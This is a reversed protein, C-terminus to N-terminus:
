SETTSCTQYRFKRRANKPARRERGAQRYRQTDADLTAPYNM